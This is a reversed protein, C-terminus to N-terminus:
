LNEVHGDFYLFNRAGEPPTWNPDDPDNPDLELPSTVVAAAAVQWTAIDALCCVSVVRDIRPERSPLSDASTGM